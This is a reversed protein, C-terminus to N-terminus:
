LRPIAPAPGSPRLPRFMRHPQPDHVFAAYCPHTFGTGAIPNILRGSGTVDVFDKKGLEELYSPARLRSLIENNSQMVLVDRDALHLLLSDLGEFIEQYSIQKVRAVDSIM